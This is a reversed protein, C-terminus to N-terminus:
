DDHRVVHQDAGHVQKVVTNWAFSDAASYAGDGIDFLDDGQFGGLVLAILDGAAFATALSSVTIDFTVQRGAAGAPVPIM